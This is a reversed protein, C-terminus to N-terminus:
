KTFTAEGCVVTGLGFEAIVKVQYNGSSLAALNLASNLNALSYTKTYPYDSVRRVLIGDRYVEARVENMCYNAKVTGNFNNNALTAPLLGSAVSATPVLTKGDRLEAITVPLYLDNRCSKFSVKRDLTWSSPYERKKNLTNNQDTLYLFSNDPDISGDSKRVITPNKTVMLAHGGTDLYRVLCDAPLMLAYAEYVVQEPTRDIITATHKGNYISWDIDGIGIVGSYSFYPMMDYSWGYEVTTSVQQWAHEISTACSNGPMQDWDTTSPNFVQASNITSAFKELGTKNNNYAIGLYTKGSEYKLSSAGKKSYDITTGAKWKVNAMAYMYDVVMQRLNVEDSTIYQPQSPQTPQTAQTAQTAQTTPATTAQTPPTTPQTAQTPQTTPAPRTPQTTPTPQTSVTPAPQTVVPQTETPNPVAPATDPTQDGSGQTEAPQTAQTAQDSPNTNEGGTAPTSQLLSDTSGEPDSVQNSDASPACGFMSVLLCVCVLLCLKKKM